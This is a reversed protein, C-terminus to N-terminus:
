ASTGGRASPGAVSGDRRPSAALDGLRRLDETLQKRRAMLWLEAHELEWDATHEPRGYRAAFLAARRLLWSRPRDYTLVVAIVFLIAIIVLDVAVAM